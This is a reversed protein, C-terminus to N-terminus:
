PKAVHWLLPWSVVLSPCTPSILSWLWQRPPSQIPCFKQRPMSNTSLADHQHTLKIAFVQPPDLDIRTKDPPIVEVFEQSPRICHEPMFRIESNGIELDVFMEWFWRGSGVLCFQIEELFGDGSCHTCNWLLWGKWHFWVQDWSGQGWPTSNSQLIHPHRLSSRHPHHTTSRESRFAM